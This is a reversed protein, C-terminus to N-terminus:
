PGLTTSGAAGLPISPINAGGLASRMLGIITDLRVTIPRQADRFADEAEKIAVTTSGSIVGRIAESSEVIDDVAEKTAKIESQLRSLLLGGLALAATIAAGIAGGAVDGLNGAAGEAADSTFSETISKTLTETLLTFTQDLLKDFMTDFIKKGFDAIVFLVKSFKQGSVEAIEEAARAAEMLSGDVLGKITDKFGAFLPEFLNNKFLEGWPRGAAVNMGNEFGESVSAEIAAKIEDGTMSATDIGLGTAFAKIQEDSLQEFQERLNVITQQMQNRLNEVQRAAESFPGRISAGMDEFQQRMAVGQQMQELIKRQRDLEASIKERRQLETAIADVTAEQIGLRKAMAELLIPDRKAMVELESRMQVFSAGVHATDRQLIPLLINMKSGFEDIFGNAEERIKLFMAANAAISSKLRDTGDLIKEITEQTLEGEANLAAVRGGIADLEEQSTVGIDSLLKAFDPMDTQIKKFGVEFATSLAAGLETGVKSFAASAEKRLIEVGETVQGPQILGKQVAGQLSEALKDVNAGEGLINLTELAKEDFKKLLAQLRKVQAEADEGGETIARIAAAVEGSAIDKAALDKMQDVMEDLVEGTNEFEQKFLKAFSHAKESEETLERQEKNIQILNDIIGTTSIALDQYSISKGFVGAIKQIAPLLIRLTTNVVDVAWSVVGNFMGRFWLDLQRFLRKSGPGLATLLAFIAVGINALMRLSDIALNALTQKGTGGLKEWLVNIAADLLPVAAELVVMLLALITEGAIKVGFLFDKLLNDLGNDAEVYRDQVFKVILELSRVVIRIAARVTELITTVGGVGKSKLGDFMRELAPSIEEFIILKVREFVQQLQTLFQGFKAARAMMEPTIPPNKNAKEFADGIAKGGQLIVGKMSSFDAGIVRLLEQQTKIDGGAANAAEAIRLFVEDPKMRQLDQLSLGAAAFTGALEPAQGSLVSDISQKLSQLSNEADGSQAGLLGMAESFKQISDPDMDLRRSANGLATLKDISDKIIPGLKNTVASAIGLIGSGVMLMARSLGAAIKLPLAALGGVVFVKDLADTVWKTASGIGRSFSQMTRQGLAFMESVVGSFGGSLFQGVLNKLVGIGRMMQQGMTQGMLAMSREAIALPGTRPPSKHEIREAVPELLDETATIIEGRGKLMQQAITTAFKGMGLLARRLPGKKPLSQPFYGEVGRLSKNVAAAVNKGGKAVGDAFGAMMRLGKDAMGKGSADIEGGAVALMQEIRQVFIDNAETLRMGQAAAGMKEQVTAIVKDAVEQLGAGSAAAAQLQAGIAKLVNKGFDPVESRKQGGGPRFKSELMQMERLTRVTLMVHKIVEPSFQQELKSKKAPSEETQVLLAVLQKLGDNLENVVREPQHVIKEMISFALESADGIEELEAVLNFIPNNKLSERMKSLDANLIKTPSEMKILLGFLDRMQQVQDKSVPPGAKRVREPGAEAVAPEAGGEDGARIKRMAKDAIHMSDTARTMAAALRNGGEAVERMAPSTKQEIIDAQTQLASSVDAIKPVQELQERASKETSAEHVARAESLASTAKADKKTVEKLTGLELDYAQKAAVAKKLEALEEDRQALLRQAQEIERSRLLIVEQGSEEQRAMDSLRSVGEIGSTAKEIESTYSAIVNNLRLMNGRQTAMGTEVLKAQEAAAKHADSLTALRSQAQVYKLKLTNLVGNLEEYQEGVGQSSAIQAKAEDLEQLIIKRELARAKGSAVDIEDIEKQTAARKEFLEGLKEEANDKQKATTNGSNLIGEQLSMAYGLDEMQEFMEKLRALQDPAMFDADAKTTNLELEVLGDSLTSIAAKLNSAEPAIEAVVAALDNMENSAKGFEARAEKTKTELNGWQRFVDKFTKTGLKTSVTIDELVTSYKTVQDTLREEAVTVAEFIKEQRDASLGAVDALKQINERVVDFVPVSKTVIETFAKGKENLGAYVEASVEVNGTLGVIKKSLEVFTDFDSGALEEFRGEIRGTVQATKKFEERLVEAQKRLTNWTNYLEALAISNETTQALLAEAKLVKDMEADTSLETIRIQAERAAKEAKQVTLLDAATKQKESSAEEVVAGTRESGTRATLGTGKGGLINGLGRLGRGALTFPSLMMRVFGAGWNRQFSKVVKSSEEAIGGFFKGITRRTKGGTSFVELFKKGANTTFTAVTKGLQPFLAGFKLMAGGSAELWRAMSASPDKIFAKFGDRIGKAADVGSRLMGSFKGAVWTAAPGFARYAKVGLMVADPIRELLNTLILVSNGAGRLSVSLTSKMSKAINAIGSRMLTVTRARSFPAVFATLILTGVGKIGSSFARVSEVGVEFVEKRIPRQAARIKEVLTNRVKESLTDGVFSGLDQLDATLVEKEALARQLSKMLPHDKALTGGKDAKVDQAAVLSTRVREIKAEVQALSKRLRNAPELQRSLIEAAKKTAKETSIPIVGFFAKVKDGLSVVGKFVKAVGINVAEPIKDTVLVKVQNPIFKLLEWLPNLIRNRLTPWAESWTEGVIKAAGLSINRAAKLLLPTLVVGLTVAVLPAVAGLTTGAAKFAAMITTKNTVANWFIRGLQSGKTAISSMVSSFSKALGALATGIKESSFAKSIQNGTRTASHGLGDFTGQAQERFLTLPSLLPVINGSKGFLMLSLIGGAAGVAGRTAVNLARQSFDLFSAGLEALSKKAPATAPALKQIERTVDKTARVATSRVREVSALADRAGQRGIKAFLEDAKNIVKDLSSLVRSLMSDILKLLNRMTGDIRNLATIGDKVQGVVAKIKKDIGGKAFETIMKALPRANKALAEIIPFLSRIARLFLTTQARGDGAAARFRLLLDQIKVAAFRIGTLGVFVLSMWPAITGTLATVGTKIGIILASVSGLLATVFFTREIIIRSRALLDNMGANLTELILVFKQLSTEPRRQLFNLTMMTLARLGTTLIAVVTTISLLGTSATLIVSMLKDFSFSRFLAFLQTVIGAGTRADSFIKPMLASLQFGGKVLREILISAGLVQGLLLPSLQKLGRLMRSFFKTVGDDVQDGVNAISGGLDNKIQASVNGVKGDLLDFVDTVVEKFRTGLDSLNEVAKTIRDLQKMANDDLKVTIQSDKKTLSEVKAAVKDLAKM